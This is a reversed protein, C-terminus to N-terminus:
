VTVLVIATTSLIKSRGYRWHSLCPRCDVSQTSNKTHFQFRFRNESLNKQCHLFAKFRVSCHVCHLTKQSRRNWSINCIILL